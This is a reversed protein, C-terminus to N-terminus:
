AEPPYTELFSRPAMGLRRWPTAAEDGLDTRAAWPYGTPGLGTAIRWGRQRATSKVQRRWEESELSPGIVWGDTELRAVSAVVLDEYRGLTWADIM